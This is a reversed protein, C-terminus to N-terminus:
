ATCKRVIEELLSRSVKDGFKQVLIEMLVKKTSISTLEGIEGSARANAELENIRAAVGELVEQWTELAKVNVKGEPSAAVLTNLQELLMVPRMELVLERINLEVLVTLIAETANFARELEERSNKANAEAGSQLAERSSEFQKVDIKANAKLETLRAKAEATNQAELDRVYLEGLREILEPAGRVGALSPDVSLYAEKFAEKVAEASRLEGAKARAKMREEVRARVEAARGGNNAFSYDANIATILLAGLVVLSGKFVNM